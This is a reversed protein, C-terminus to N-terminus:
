PINKGYCQYTATVRWHICNGYGNIQTCHSINGGFAQAESYGWAQCKKTATQLAENWKPKPAEMMGYEYSMEITGDSRSGGTAYLTKITTCGASVIVIVLVTGLTLIKM